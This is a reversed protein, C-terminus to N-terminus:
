SRLRFVLGASHSASVSDQDISDPIQINGAAVGDTIQLVMEQMAQGNQDILDVYM